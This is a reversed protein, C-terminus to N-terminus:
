LFGMSFTLTKSGEEMPVILTGSREEMPVIFTRSEGHPFHSELGKKWLSLELGEEVSGHSRLGKRWLSLSSVHTCLVDAM